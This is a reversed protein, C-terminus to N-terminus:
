DKKEDFVTGCAHCKTAKALSIGGCREDQCQRVKEGAMAFLMIRIDALRSAIKTIKVILFLLILIAAGTGIWMILTQEM